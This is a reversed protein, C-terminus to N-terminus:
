LFPTSYPILCRPINRRSSSTFDVFQRALVPDRSPLPFHDHVFLFLSKARILYTDVSFPGDPSHRITRVSTDIM